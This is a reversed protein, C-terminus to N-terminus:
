KYIRKGTLIRKVNTFNFLVAFGAICAVLLVVQVTRGTSVTILLEQTAVNNQENDQLANENILNAIEVKNVITGTNDESM